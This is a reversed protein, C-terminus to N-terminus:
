QLCVHATTAAPRPIMIAPRQMWVGLVPSIPDLNLRVMPCQQLWFWNGEFHVFVTQPAQDLGLGLQVSLGGEHEVSAMVREGAAVVVPQELVLTKWVAAEGLVSLEDPEVEFSATSALLNDYPGDNFVDGDYSYVGGSVM